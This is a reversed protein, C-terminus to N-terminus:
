DPAVGQRLVLQHLVSIPVFFMAVWPMIELTLKSCTVGLLFANM